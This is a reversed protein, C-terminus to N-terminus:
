TPDTSGGSFGALVKKFVDSIGSAKCGALIIKQGEFSSLQNYVDIIQEAHLPKMTTLEFKISIEDLSMGADLEKGLTEAFKKNDMM